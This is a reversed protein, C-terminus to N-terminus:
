YTDLCLVATGETTYFTALMTLILKEKTNTKVSSFTDYFQSATLTYKFSKPNKYRKEIETYTNISDYILSFCWM